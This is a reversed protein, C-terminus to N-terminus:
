VKSCKTCTGYVDIRQRNPQFRSVVSVKKSIESAIPDDLDEINGCQLCILNIHPKTCSDFRAQSEPLDLEQIFNLERLVELTKYVTALSVTPHVKKVRDYITKATPHERNQLAIRCIAIRQPTAKYGKCRLAEIAAVDSKAYNTM